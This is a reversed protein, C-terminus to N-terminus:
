LFDVDEDIYNLVFNAYEVIKSPDPDKIERWLQIKYANLRLRKYLV